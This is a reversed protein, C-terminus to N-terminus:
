RNNLYTPSGLPRFPKRGNRNVFHERRAREAQDLLDARRSLESRMYFDNSFNNALQRIYRSSRGKCLRDCMSLMKDKTEEARDGGDLQPFGCTWHRQWSLRPEPKKPTEPYRSEPTYRVPGAFTESVTRTPGDERISSGRNRANLMADSRLILATRTYSDPYQAALQRIAAPSRNSCLQEVLIDAARNRRRVWNEPQGRNGMKARARMRPGQGLNSRSVGHQNKSIAAKVTDEDSDAPLNLLRCLELWNNFPGHITQVWNADVLASTRDADRIQRNTVPRERLYRVTEPDTNAIANMDMDEEDDNSIPPESGDDIIPPLPLNPQDTVAAGLIRLVLGDETETVPSLFRHGSAVAQIGLDTFVIRAMVFDGAVELDIIWGAAVTGGDATSSSHEFDVLLGPFNPEAARRAFDDLISAISREDVISVMGTHAYEGFKLVPYFNSPSRLFQEPTVPTM